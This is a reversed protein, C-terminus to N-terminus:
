GAILAKLEGVKRELLAADGRTEVNLRLLPETNSARLNFRWDDFELSLGDITEVKPGHRLYADAVRAQSARADAVTFNIEGSCPYAAICDEMIGALTAGSQCLDAVAVLWALM